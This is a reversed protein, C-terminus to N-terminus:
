LREWERLQKFVVGHRVGSSSFLCFGMHVHFGGDMPGVDRPFKAESDMLKVKETALFKVQVVGFGVHKQLSTPQGIWLQCRLVLCRKTLVGRSTGPKSEEM